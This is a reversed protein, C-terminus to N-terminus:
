FNAIVPARFRGTSSAPKGCGQDTIFALASLSLTPPSTGPGPQFFSCDKAPFAGPGLGSLATDLVASAATLECMSDAVSFASKDGSLCVAGAASVDLSRGRVGDDVAASCPIGEAVWADPCVPRRSVGM